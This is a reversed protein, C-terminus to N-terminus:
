IKSTTPEHLNKTSYKIGSFTKLFSLTYSTQNKSKTNEQEDSFLKINVETFKVFRGSTM